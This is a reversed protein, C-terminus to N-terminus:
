STIPTGEVRWEVRSRLASGRPGEARDLPTATRCGRPRDTGAWSRTCWVPAGRLAHHVVAEECRFVWHYGNSGEIRVGTEDSAVVAARRLASLAPTAGPM